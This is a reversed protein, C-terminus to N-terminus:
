PRTVTIPVRGAPVLLYAPLKDVGANAALERHAFSGCNWELISQTDSPLRTREFDVRGETDFTACDTCGPMSCRLVVVGKSPRIEDLSRPAVVEFARTAAPWM